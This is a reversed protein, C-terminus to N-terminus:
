RDHFHGAVGVCLDAFEPTSKIYKVLDVGHQFRPDTPIWHEKGRPPDSHLTNYCSMHLVNM